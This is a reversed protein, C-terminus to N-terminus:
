KWHQLQWLFDALQRSSVKQFERGQDSNELYDNLGTLRSPDAALDEYTLIHGDKWFEEDPSIYGPHSQSWAIPDQGAPLLGYEHAVSLTIVDVTNKFVQDQDNALQVAASTYDTKIADDVIASRAQEIGFKGVEGIADDLAKPLPILGIVENLSEAFAENAKDKGIADALNAQNAGSSLLGYMAYVNGMDTELVQVGQGQKGSAAAYLRAAAEAAAAHLITKRAGDDLMAQGAVARINDTDFVVRFYPDNPNLNPVRSGGPGQVQHAAEDLDGIYSEVLRGVSDRAAKPMTAGDAALADLIAAASQASRRGVEDTGRHGVAAAEFVKDLANGDDAFANPPYDLGTTLTRLYDKGDGHLVIDQAALHNAGLAELYGVMFDQYKGNDSTGLQLWVPAALGGGVKDALDQRSIGSQKLQEMRPILYDGVSDLFQRGFVLQRGDEDFRLLESTGQPDAEALKRGFDGPLTQAGSARSATALATAWTSLWREEDRPSNVHDQNVLQGDTNAHVGMVWAPFRAAREPGLRNFFGTCFDPDYQYVALQEIVDGPIMQGDNGIKGKLKDALRQGEQYAQEPSVLKFTAEDVFVYGGQGLGVDPDSLAIDIRRQLDGKASASWNSANRVPSTDVSVGADSLVSALDRDLQGLGSHATDLKGAVAKLAAPDIAAFTSAGGGDPEVPRVM